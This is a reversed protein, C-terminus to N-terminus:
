TYLVLISRYSFIGPNFGDLPRRPIRQGGRDRPAEAVAAVVRHEEWWEQVSCLKPDPDGLIQQCPGTVWRLLAKTEEYIFHLYHCRHQVKM